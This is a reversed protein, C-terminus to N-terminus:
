IDSPALDGSDMDSLLRELYDKMRQRYTREYGRLEDIKHELSSRESNLQNLTADRQGEADSVIREASTRAEAIIRDSEERGEAVYQDHLRQALALMGAASDSGASPAAAPAVVPAPAEEVVKQVVPEVAVVPEPAPAPASDLAEGRSLEAVRSEAAALKAKLEENEAYVSRMTSVVEDLFDDVEDQDYGDRFKTTQFSKNLVDDASLLAM